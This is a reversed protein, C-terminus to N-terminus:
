QIIFDNFYVNLVKGSKLVMNCKLIIAKQLLNKGEITKIDNFSSSSLVNIIYNRLITEKKKIEEPIEP